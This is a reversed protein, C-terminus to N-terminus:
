RHTRLKRNGIRPAVRQDPRAHEVGVQPGRARRDVKITERSRVNQDVFTPYGFDRGCSGAGEALRRPEDSEPRM